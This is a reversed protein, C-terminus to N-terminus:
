RNKLHRGDAMKFKLPGLILVKFLGYLVEYQDDISVMARFQKTKKSFIANKHVPKPTLCVFLHVAGDCLAGTAIAVPPKIFWMAYWQTGYKGGGVFNFYNHMISETQKWRSLKKAISIICQKFSYVSVRLVYQLAVQRVPRVRVVTQAFTWM